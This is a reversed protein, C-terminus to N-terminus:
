TKMERVLVGTTPVGLIFLVMCNVEPRVFALCTFIIACTLMVVHFINRFILLCVFFLREYDYLVFFYTSKNHIKLKQLFFITKWCKELMLM